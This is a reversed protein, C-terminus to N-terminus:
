QFRPVMAGGTYILFRCQFGMRGYSSRHNIDRNSNMYVNIYEGSEGRYSWRHLRYHAAFSNWRDRAPGHMQDPSYIRNAGAWPTWWSARLFYANFALTDCNFVRARDCAGEVAIRAAEGAGQVHHSVARLAGRTRSDDTFFLMVIWVEAPLPPTVGAMMM